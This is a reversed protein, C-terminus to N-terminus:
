GLGPEGPLDYWRDFWYHYLQLRHELRVDQWVGQPAPNTVGSTNISTSTDSFQTGSDFGTDASYSGNAAGGANIAKVLVPAPTATATPTPTSGGPTPTAGGAPQLVQIANIFPNDAGGHTFAIVIQGSANATTNFQRSVAKKYGATAYVDFNSLVSTGNISVGFTRAGAQQFSLEAWDLRVAYSANATLGTITYNFATNWRVDQYVAQPAPNTVGSTDISTSTDSFQTGSDFGTDASFSGSAAGGANIAKVVTYTPAPTATPAPTSTPGATPTATPPVPTATPGATTPKPTATPPVPTPTAGGSPQVIEIGNIFPNDATGHSFAIVIQGSANATTLFQKVLAHKYGAAAFVDFNSLVTAGNISVGFTRAGAQQFSLEAWHLNVAYNAGATLGPITYTFATNWRVDQYVAQPAPNAVGTTDINTSTDSFQTGSDFGTDASFNGSAAGGANIAKVVTGTVPPPTPTPTPAPTATPGTTATPLPTGAVTPTITPPPPNTLNVCHTDLWGSNGTGQTITFGVGCNYIGGIGLGTATVNSFTAAGNAQEQVAFTGAKNINIHDFTVNSITSGIFHIAEYSSDDIEADTVNVIGTLAADSAWFWIAGVGFQWNPDLVGTRVLTNRAITTTGSLPVASFRNGVHIGGGQTLTDAVYNDTVSNDHGGYIAINNALVPITVTDFSFVNDHDAQQESWM